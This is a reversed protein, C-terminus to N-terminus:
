APKAKITTFSKLSSYLMGTFTILWAALAIYIFGKAIMEFYPSHLAQSLRISCVTYMGFSFVLSWNAPQYTFEIKKYFNRWIDLIVILPIWWTGTIWTLVVFGRLFPIYDYIGPFNNISTILTAGSLTTIAAAGMDIWYPPTVEKATVKYFTLRYFIIVILINYFMFGLVYLGLAVLMTLDVPFPLHANLSTALISLSQTSVAILLWLGNMGEELSPKKEKIVVSTLFGYLVVLWVVGAFFWLVVAPTFNQRILVYQIGLICSGAVLTLYGAGKAHASLDNAFQSSFLILRLLFIALLIVFELNNLWFLINSIFEFQLLHAAISVIGTAMVLAFYAPSFSKIKEKIFLSSKM